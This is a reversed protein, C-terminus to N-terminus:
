KVIDADVVPKPVVPPKDPVIADALKQRLPLVKPADLLKFNVSDLVTVLIKLDEQTLDIM